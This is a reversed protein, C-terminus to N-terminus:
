FSPKIFLVTYFLLCKQYTKNACTKMWTLQCMCTEDVITYKVISPRKRDSLQTKLIKLILIKILVSLISCFHTKLCIIFFIGKVWYSFKIIAIIFNFLHFQYYYIIKKLQLLIAMSLISNM